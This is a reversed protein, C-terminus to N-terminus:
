MGCVLADGMWSHFAHNRLAGEMDFKALPGYLLRKYSKDTQEISWNAFVTVGRTSWDIYANYSPKHWIYEPSKEGFGALWSRGSDGLVYGIQLRVALHDCACGLAKVTCLM